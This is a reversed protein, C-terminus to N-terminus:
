AARVGTGHVMETLRGVIDSLSKSQAMLQEAASASEEATAATQQTLRDMRTLTQTVQEVGRAQEASGHHVEEVLMRIRRAQETIGRVSAAVEGVKAQGERSREMSETILASIDGAAQACRQALTRVEDAVVAFGKGVDGARAAEVAANLALINTQFAIEDIVKIIRSMKGSSEGIEGMSVVMRELVQNTAEFQTNASVVLETAERSSGSNKRAMSNIEESSASTEQLSAAQESADRALGQASQAIQGAAASTGDAALKLNHVTDRLGSDIRRLAVGGVTLIGIMAAGAILFIFVQAHSNARQTQATLDDEQRSLDTQAKEIAALVQEFAPSAQDVFAQQAQGYDGRM